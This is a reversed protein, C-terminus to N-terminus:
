TWRLYAPWANCPLKDVLLQSEQAHVGALAEEEIVQMSRTAKASLTAMENTILRQSIRQLDRYCRLCARHDAGGGGAFNHCIVPESSRIGVGDQQALLWMALDFRIGWLSEKKLRTRRLSEQAQARGRGGERLCHCQIVLVVEMLM